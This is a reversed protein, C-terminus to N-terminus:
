PRLPAPVPTTTDAATQAAAMAVPSHDSAAAPDRALWRLLLWYYPDPWAVPHRERVRWLADEAGLGELLILAACCVTASRNVGAYCHVLVRRGERLRDAVWSAEAVLEGLDMGASMEGKHLVRDTPHRHGWAVWANEVGCLNLVHDVDPRETRQHHLGGIFLRHRQPRGNLHIAVPDGAYRRYLVPRHPVLGVPQPPTPAWRRVVPARRFPGPREELVCDRARLVCIGDPEGSGTTVWYYEGWEPERAHVIGFLRRTDEDEPLADLAAYPGTHRIWEARVFRLRLPRYEGEAVEHPRGSILRSEPPSLLELTHFDFVIDRSQGRAAPRPEERIADLRADFLLPYYPSPFNRSRIPTKSM